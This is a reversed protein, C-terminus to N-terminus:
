VKENVSGSERGPVGRNTDDGDHNAELALYLLDIPRQKCCNM